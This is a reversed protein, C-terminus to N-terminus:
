ADPADGILGGDSPELSRLMVSWPTTRGQTTLRFEVSVTQETTEFEDECGSEVALNSGDMQHLVIEVSVIYTFSCFPEM